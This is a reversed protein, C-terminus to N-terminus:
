DRPNSSAVEEDKTNIRNRICWTKFRDEVALYGWHTPSNRPDISGRHVVMPSRDLNKPRRAHQPRVRQHRQTSLRQPRDQTLVFPVHGLNKQEYGWVDSTKLQYLIRILLVTKNNSTPVQRTSKHM